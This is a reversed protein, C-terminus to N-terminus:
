PWGEPALFLLFAVTVFRLFVAGPNLVGSRIKMKEFNPLPPTLHAVLMLGSVVANGTGLNTPCSHLFGYKEDLMFDKGSEGKM